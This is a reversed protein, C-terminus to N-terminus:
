DQGLCTWNLVREVVVLINNKKLGGKLGMPNRHTKNPKKICYLVLSM